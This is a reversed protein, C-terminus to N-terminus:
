KDKFDLSYIQFGGNKQLESFKLMRRQGWTSVIFGKDTVGTIMTAHAGENLTVTAKGKDDYYNIPNEKEGWCDINVQKGQELARTVDKKIQKMEKKTKSESTGLNIFQTKFKLDTNKLFDDLMDVNFSHWESYYNQYKIRKIDIGNENKEGISTVDFIMKGNQKIFVTGQNGQIYMDAILNGYNFMTKGNKDKFILDYGFQQKFKEPSDKYYSMIDNAVAAYTCAGISDLYKLTLAASNASMNYKEMIHKKIAMYDSRDETLKRFIGQDIGYLNTNKQLIKYFKDADNKERTKPRLYKDYFETNRIKNMLKSKANKVFKGGTSNELKKINTEIFKGFKNKLSKGNLNKPIKSKCKNAIKTGARSLFRKLAKKPDKLNEELKAVKYSKIGLMDAISRNINEAQILKNVADDVWTGISDLESEIESINQSMNRIQASYAFDSPVTISSITGRASKLSAKSNKIAPKVDKNLGESNFTLM